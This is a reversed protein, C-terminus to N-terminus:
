PEPLRGPWDAAPGAAAVATRRAFAAADAARERMLLLSTPSKSRMAGFRGSGSTRVLGARGTASGIKAVLASLFNRLQRVDRGEGTNISRPDTTPPLTVKKPSCSPQLIKTSSRKASM